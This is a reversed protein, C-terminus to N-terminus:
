GGDGLDPWTGAPPGYGVGPQSWDCVGDPFVRALRALQDDTLEREYSAAMEEIPALECRLVDGSRPGGAAMRPEEAIPFAEACTPDEPADAGVIEEGDALRCRTEASSPRTDVLASAWANGDVPGSRTLPRGGAAEAAATLWEDLALTPGLALEGLAGTLTDVLSSGEPMAVSWLAVTAPWDAPSSPTHSAGPDDPGAALRDLLEFSRVRDHIDGMEDTFVNVLIMPTEPLGGWPGTVRGTEYSRAVLDDPVASREPIREGDEGYGGIGENLRVFQEGDIVGANFADLGYQVGRNDYGPRAFGTDPDRGTVAVNTEWVTCRWGDPNSERDYWEAEPIRPPPVPGGGGFAGSVDFGCGAQPDITTAFTTDWLGCASALAHGNVAARQEPTLAAGDPTAYWDTLLGCDYVGPGISLADPFPATPAIGDLLGPHNQALLIQQIAGGSGGEGITFRPEGYAETFREKVMSATEASIVDNCLVQYTNFTASATAYGRELLDLSPPDLLFFGQTFSAGCGGGFRYVLRENWASTDVPGDPEPRPELMTIRYVSRNLVGTETRLVFPVQEGDVEVMAADAPPRAPDALPHRARQADVYEWTTVTPAACGDEPTSAALGYTETSCAYLDLQEGSFIPGSTPHDTVTVAGSADGLRATVETEGELGDVLGVLRGGASAGGAGGAESPDPAFADSVDREGATVRLDGADAGDPIAVAVLADGGTVDEPRSSVVEVTLAAADDESGDDGTCGFSALATVAAAVAGARTRWRARPDTV